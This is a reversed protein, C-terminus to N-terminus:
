AFNTCALAPNGSRAYEPQIMACMASLKWPNLNIYILNCLPVFTATHPNREHALNEISVYQEVLYSVVYVCRDRLM